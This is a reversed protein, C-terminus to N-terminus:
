NKADTADEDEESPTDALLSAVKNFPVEQSGVQLRLGDDAYNVSEVRAEIYAFGVDEKLNDRTVVNINYEGSPAMAGNAQRGDWTITQDGGKTIAVYNLVNGKKDSIAALAEKEKPSHVSFEVKEKSPSWQIEDLKLRARKGVLSVATAQAMTEGNAEQRAVLGEMGKNLGEISESINQTGELSSFQALQAVFETNETPSLPDQFKLQTVLLNLFDQKGLQKSAERFLTDDGTSAVGSQMSGTRTDIDASVKRQETVKKILADISSSVSGGVRSATTTPTNAPPVQSGIASTSM